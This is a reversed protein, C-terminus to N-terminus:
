KIEKKNEFDVVPTVTESLTTNNKAMTKWAATFSGGSATALKTKLVIENGGTMRWFVGKFDEKYSLVFVVGSFKSILGEAIKNGGFDAKSTEKELRPGSINEKKLGNRAGVEKAFEDIAKMDEGFDAGDAIYRMVEHATMELQIKHLGMLTFKYIGGFMLFFIPIIIVLETM